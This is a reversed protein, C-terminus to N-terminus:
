MVKCTRICQSMHLSVIMCACVTYMLNYANGLERVYACVDSM